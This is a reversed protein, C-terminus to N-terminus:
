APKPRRCDPLRRTSSRRTVIGAISAWSASTTSTALPVPQVHVMGTGTGYSSRVFILCVWLIFAALVFSGFLTVKSIINMAPPFIQPVASM